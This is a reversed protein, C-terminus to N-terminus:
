AAASPSGRPQRRELAEAAGLLGLIVWLMSHITFFTWMDWFMAFGLAVLSAGAALGFACLPRHDSRALRMTRSIGVILLAIWALGGPIGAEATRLLYHNHVTSQWKRTLEGSIYERYTVAYAGPGVGFIPHAEIVRMAMQMLAHRERYSSDLPADEFRAAILPAAIAAVLAVAAALALVKSGSVVRRRYGFFAIWM